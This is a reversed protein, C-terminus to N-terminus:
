CGKEIKPILTDIKPVIKEKLNDLEGELSTFTELSDGLQNGGSKTSFVYQNYKEAIDNRHNILSYLELIESVLSSELCILNNKLIGWIETNLKMTQNDCTIIIKDEKLEILLGSLLTKKLKKNENNEKIWNLVVSSIFGLFTGLLAGILINPVPNNPEDYTTTNQSFATDPQSLLFFFLGLILYRRM